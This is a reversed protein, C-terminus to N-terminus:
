EEDYNAEEYDEMDEMDEDDEAFLLAELDSKVEELDATINALKDLIRDKELEKEFEEIDKEIQLKKRKIM